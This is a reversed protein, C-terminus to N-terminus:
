SKKWDVSRRGLVIGEVSIDEDLDPWHIGTGMGIIKFNKREKETAKALVPYFELPVKVERGDSLQLRISDDTFFVGVAIMEPFNYKEALSNM